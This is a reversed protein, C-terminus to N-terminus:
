APDDEEVGSKTASEIERAAERLLSALSYSHRQEVSEATQRLVAALRRQRPLQLANAPGEARFKTVM